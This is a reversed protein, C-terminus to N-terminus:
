TAKCSFAEAETHRITYMDLVENMTKIFKIFCSICTNATCRTHIQKGIFSTDLPQHSPVLSMPRVWGWIQCDCSVELASFSAVEFCVQKPLEDWSVFITCDIYAYLLIYIYIYRTFRFGLMKYNQKELFWTTIEEVSRQLHKLACVYISIAIGMYM